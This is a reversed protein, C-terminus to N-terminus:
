PQQSLQNFNMLYMNYFTCLQSSNIQILVARQARSISNPCLSNKLSQSMTGDKIRLEVVDISLLCIEAHHYLIRFDYMSNFALNYFMESIIIAVSTLMKCPCYFHQIIEVSIFINAPVSRTTCILSGRQSGSMWNSLQNSSYRSM